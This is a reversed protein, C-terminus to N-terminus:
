LFGWIKMHIGVGLISIEVLEL